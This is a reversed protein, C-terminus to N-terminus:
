RPMKRQRPLLPKLPRKIAGSCSRTLTKGRYTWTQTGKLRAARRVFTGSYAAKYQRDGGNWSGQLSIRQGIVIGFGQEASAETAAAKLRVVHTYHAASGVITVEIAGRTNTGTVPLKDCVLTGWYVADLVKAAAPTAVIAIMAAALMGIANVARLM